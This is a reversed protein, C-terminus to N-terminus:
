RGLRRGEEALRAGAYDFFTRFGGCLYNLGGEGDPTLLFRRKPCEGYCAFLFPCRRCYGPLSKSKGEGFDRQRQSRVMASLSTERGATGVCYEAHVYHDCSFVRGDSEMSLARGCIPSTVCMTATGGAWQSAWSDFWSIHVRERGDKWWCDFLECLFRGWQEASISWDTMISEPHGPRTQPSGPTLLTDGPWKGPAVERFDKREACPQIQLTTAGIEGTLFEYVERARGANAPTITTLTNFSVGHKKLCDAAARVRAFTGGGGRMKRYADHIDAPGDISLGVLFKHEALFECWEEDLLLGNTQFSNAIKPGGPRAHKQQFAIVRRYFDLGVVTPEGGQWTFFVTPNDQSRLYESIFRELLEDSVIGDATEANREESEAKGTSEAGGGEEIDARRYGIDARGQNHKYFCYECAMNCAAGGPKNMVHFVAIPWATDLYSRSLPIHTM